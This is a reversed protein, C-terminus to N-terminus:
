YEMVHPHLKLHIKQRYLSFSWLRNFLYEMGDLSNSLAANLGTDM